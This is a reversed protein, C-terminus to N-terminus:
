KRRTIMDEIMRGEEKFLKALAKVGSIIPNLVPAMRKYARLIAFLIEDDVEVVLNTDDILADVNLFVGEMREVIEEASPSPAYPIGLEKMLQDGEANIANFTNVSILVKM